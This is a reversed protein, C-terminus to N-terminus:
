CVPMKRRLLHDAVCMAVRHWRTFRASDAITRWPAEQVLCMGLTQLQADGVSSLKDDLDISALSYVGAMGAAVAARALASEYCGLIAELDPGAM